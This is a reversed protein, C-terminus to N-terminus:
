KWGDGSKEDGNGLRLAYVKNAIKEPQRAYAAATAADFRSPWTSMLGKAGYNLNEVLRTYDASEHATQALFAAVRSVSNIKASDLVANLPDVWEDSNPNHVLIQKLQNATLIM